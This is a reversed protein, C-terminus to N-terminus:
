GIVLRVNTTEPLSYGFFNPQKTKHIIQQMTFIIIMAMITIIETMMGIIMIMLMIVTIIMM